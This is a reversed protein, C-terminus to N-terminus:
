PFGFKKGILKGIFSLAVGSAFLVGAAILFRRCFAHEKALYALGACVLCLITLLISLGLIGLMTLSGPDYDAIIITM